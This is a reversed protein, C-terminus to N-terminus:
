AVQHHTAHRRTYISELTQNIERLQPTLTSLNGNVDTTVQKKCHICAYEKIHSTVNKSVAYHHGFVSCFLKKM